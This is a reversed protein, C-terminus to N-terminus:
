GDELRNGLVMGGILVVAIVVLAISSSVFYPYIMLALGTLTPSVRRQRRGYVFVAFGILSILSSWLFWTTDM